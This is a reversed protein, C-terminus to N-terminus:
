GWVASTIIWTSSVSDYAKLVPINASNDIWFLTLDDPAESGIYYENGSYKETTENYQRDLDAPDIAKIYRVGDREIFYGADSYTRNLVVGDDRTIFTETVIM